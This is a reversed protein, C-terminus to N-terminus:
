KSSVLISSPIIGTAVPLLKVPQNHTLLFQKLVTLEDTNILDVGCALLERWVEEREPSAWLRVKKGQKHAMNVFSRLKDREKVPMIGHGNWDLLSRYHCSAIPCTFNLNNSGAIITLDEDIFALRYKERGFIEYPKNGSIVITVQRETLIGNEYSSLIERYKALLEKLAQYTKNANMKIDIMLIIPRYYNAYVRGKNKTIHEYLPKLYLNELTKGSRFFPFLHAVIFENGVQFIDVEINTYDNELADYLPRRHWYDNHAYANALPIGQAQITQQMCCFMLICTLCSRILDSYSKM